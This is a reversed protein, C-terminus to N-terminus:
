WKIYLLVFLFFFPVQKQGRSRRVCPIEIVKSETWDQQMIAYPFSDYNDCTTGHRGDKSLTFVAGDFDPYYKAIRRIPDMCADSPSEGQRMLQVVHYSPVFRHMIDGNDTACAGDAENDDYACSGIVASDSVRGPIKFSLGNTSIDVAMDDKPDLAIM